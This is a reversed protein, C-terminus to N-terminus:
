DLTINNRVMFMELDSILHKLDKDHFTEAIRGRDYLRGHYRIWYNGKDMFTFSKEIVLKGKRIDGMSFQEMQGFESDSIIHTQKYKDAFQKLIKKEEPTYKHLTLYKTTLLLKKDKIIKNVTRSVDLGKWPSKLIVQENWKNNYTIGLSEDEYKRINIDDKVGKIIYEDGSLKGDHYESSSMEPAEINRFAASLKTREGKTFTSDEVLYRNIKDVINM